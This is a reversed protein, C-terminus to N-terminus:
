RAMRNTDSQLYSGFYVSDWTTVGNKDTAPNKLEGGAASVSSMNGVPLMGAILACMLILAWHKRTKPKM